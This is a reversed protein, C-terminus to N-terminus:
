AQAPTDNWDMGSTRAIVGAKPKIVRQVFIVLAAVGIGFLDTTWGGEIMALAAVVLGLRLVM